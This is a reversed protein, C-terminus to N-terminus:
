GLPKRQDLGFDTARHTAFADLEFFSGPDLRAVVTGIM